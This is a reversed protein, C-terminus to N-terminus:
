NRLELEKWNSSKEEWKPTKLYQPFELYQLLLGGYNNIETISFNIANASDSHTTLPGVLYLGSVQLIVSIWQFLVM